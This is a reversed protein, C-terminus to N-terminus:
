KKVIKKIIMKNKVSKVLESETIQKNQLLYNDLQEPLFYILKGNPKFYEIKKAHTLKYLTSESMGIYTCAQKFDLIRKKSLLLKERLAWLNNRSETDNPKVPKNKM